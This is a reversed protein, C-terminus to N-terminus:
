KWNSFRIAKMGCLALVNQFTELVSDKLGSDFTWMSFAGAKFNVSCRRARCPAAADNNVSLSQKWWNSSHRTALDVNPKLIQPCSM